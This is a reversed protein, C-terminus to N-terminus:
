QQCHLSPLFLPLILHARDEEFWFLGTQKEYKQGPVRLYAGKVM